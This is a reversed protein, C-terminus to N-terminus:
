SAGPYGRSFLRSCARHFSSPLTLNGPFSRAQTNARSSVLFALTSLVAAQTRRTQGPAGLQDLLATMGGADGMGVKGEPAYVHDQFNHLRMETGIDYASYV